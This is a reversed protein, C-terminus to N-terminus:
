VGGCRGERVSGFLEHSLFFTSPMHYATIPTSDRGAYATGSSSLMVPLTHNKMSIPLASSLKVTGMVFESANINVTSPSHHASFFTMLLPLDRQQHFTHRRQCAVSVQIPM